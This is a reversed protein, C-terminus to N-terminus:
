GLLMGRERLYEREAPSALRKDWDALLPNIIKPWLFPIFALLAMPMYGMPLLPAEDHLQKLEWFRKTANRHHNAHLQLNYFMGSTLRRYSDWSHRAEVPTGPVRVLGYHEIYNVVELYTKGVYAAFLSIPLGIPGLLLVFCIVVVVTMMQGRWFRNNWIQDKIGKRKLREREHKYANIMQGKTSRRQFTMIYEGRRPTAPDQETGVYRHHGYVHEISFGTDWTFALLWRGWIQAIKSDTRHVLEHAVNVGALGYYMGLSVIAGVFDSLNSHARSHDMDFGLVGLAGDVWAVGYPKLLTVTVLTCIIIIPLTIYVMTQMYWVPPLDEGNGADGVLEDVYSMLIFSLGFGAWTWPGGMATGVAGVLMFINMTSFRITNFIRHALWHGRAGAPNPAAIQAM